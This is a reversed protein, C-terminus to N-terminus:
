PKRPALNLPKDSEERAVGYFNKGKMTIHGRELLGQATIFLADLAQGDKAENADNERVMLGHVTTRQKQNMVGMLSGGIRADQRLFVRALIAPPTDNVLYFLALNDFFLLDRPRM